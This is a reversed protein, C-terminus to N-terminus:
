NYTSDVLPAAALAPRLCSSGKAWLLCAWRARGHVQVEQQEIKSM